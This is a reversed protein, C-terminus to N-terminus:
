AVPEVEVALASGVELRHRAIRADDIALTARGGRVGLTTEWADDGVKARVRYVAQAGWAQAPDFGLAVFTRGSPARELPASVRRVKSECARKTAAHRFAFMRELRRRAYWGGFLSGFPEVPLAYEITDILWTGGEDDSTMRHTHVWKRFPGGRMEDRFMTPPEYATHTAVLRQALPGLKVELVVRLGVPIGKAVSREVVRAPEWPPMLAELAGPSEHFAFVQEPPAAIRSRYEFTAM